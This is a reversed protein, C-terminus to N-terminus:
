VRVCRGQPVVSVMPGTLQARAGGEGGGRNSAVVRVEATEAAKDEQACFLLM